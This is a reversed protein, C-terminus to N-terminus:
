GRAAGHRAELATEYALLLDDTIFDRVHYHFPAGIRIGGIHLRLQDDFAHSVHPRWERATEPVGPWGQVCAKMHVFHPTGPRPGAAVDELGNDRVALLFASDSSFPVHPNGFHRACTGTWDELYGSMTAFLREAVPGRRFYCFGNHLDPLGIRYLEKRLPNHEIPEGRYTVATGGVLDAAAMVEWWPSVDDFFLTDADVTVTERYPSLDYMRVYNDVRWTKNVFDPRVDPIAIVHDFVQRYRDPLHQSRPVIVSLGTVTSQTLRLSLALCYAMRLYDAGEHNFAHTLYGRGTPPSTM